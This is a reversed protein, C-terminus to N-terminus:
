MSLGLLGTGALFMEVWVTAMTRKGPCDLQAPFFSKYNMCDDGDM